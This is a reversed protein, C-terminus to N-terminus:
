VQDLQCVLRHYLIIPATYIQKQGGNDAALMLSVLIFSTETDTKARSAGAYANSRKGHACSTISRRSGSTVGPCDGEGWRCWIRPPTLEVFIVIFQLNASM